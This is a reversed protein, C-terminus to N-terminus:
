IERKTNNSEVERISFYSLQNELESEYDITPNDAVVEGIYKECQKIIFDQCKELENSNHVERSFNGLM